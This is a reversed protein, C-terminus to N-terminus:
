GAHPPAPGGPKLLWTESLGLGRVSIGNPLEAQYSQHHHGHVILRAGCRGALADIVPFGHPHSSPAEHTV